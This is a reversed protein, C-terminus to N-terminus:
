GRSTYVEKVKNKNNFCIYLSDYDIRLGSCMGLSYILCNGLKRIEVETGLLLLVEEKTTRGRIFYNNKLDKVMAGKICQNDKEVQEWDSKSIDAQIWATRDFKSRAFPYIRTYYYLL